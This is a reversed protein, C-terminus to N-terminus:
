KLGTVAETGRTMASLVHEAFRPAVARVGFTQLAREYAAKGLQERRAPAGLERIADTLALVDGPPVLLGTGGLAWRLPALDSAIVARGHMMADMLKAPLQALSWTKGLSPLAVIDASAVLAQGEDFTTQGLWREWSKADEPAGATVELQVDLGDRGARAQEVSRRLEPLGKHGKPSGVFRVIVPGAAGSNFRPAPEEARVHPIILGGGYWEELVPNSVTLPLAQTLARMRVLERYRGSGVRDRIRRRLPQWSLRYEIDPDDVDALLPRGVRTAVAEAVGLSEPLPKIALVANSWETAERLATQRQSDTLGFLLHCDAAFATDQLPSWVHQGVVGVVKTKWGLERALLWLCYTRGLGNNEFSPTVLLLRIPGTEGTEM